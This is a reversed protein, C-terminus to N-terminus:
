VAALVRAQLAALEAEDKARTETQPIPLDLSVIGDRLALVREGLAVAEAVDHTILVITFGYERWLSRLLVHMETRTLADLAGFPEDLLLVGPRGVLARALAVRQRQGGSLFRPWDNARDALGVAGLADLARRRWDPGRAIGVNGLASQWPLLRADQFMMRTSQQLGSVPQHGIALTGGSPQELGAILRPLTSKGGGSRGVVVAFQGADITLDLAKLVNRQGFAKSVAHLAIAPGRRASSSAKAENAGAAHLRHSSAVPPEELILTQSSMSM